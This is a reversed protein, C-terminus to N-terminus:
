KCKALIFCGNNLGGFSQILSSYLNLNAFFLETLEPPPHFLSHVDPGVPTIEVAVLALVSKRSNVGGQQM